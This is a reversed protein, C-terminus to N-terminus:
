SRNDQAVCSLQGLEIGITTGPSSTLTPVTGLSVAGEISKLGGNDGTIATAGTISTIYSSLPVPAGTGDVTVPASLNVVALPDTTPSASSWNFAAHQWGATTYWVVYGSYTLAASSTGITDASTCALQATTLYLNVLGLSGSLAPYGSPLTPTGTVFPLGPFVKLWTNMSASSTAAVAGAAGTATGTYVDAGGTVTPGSGSADAIRVMPNASSLGLSADPVVTSDVQNTFWLGGCASGGSAVLGSSVQLSSTTADAGVPAVPLGGSVSAGLNSYTTHGFAGWGGCDFGSGIAYNNSDSLTGNAVDVPAAASGKAGTISGVSLTPDTDVISAATADAGARSGNSLTGNVTVGGVTAIISNGARDQTQLLMAASKAQAVVLTADTGQSAIETFTTFKHTQGSNSWSTVVTVGIIPSPPQDAGVTANNYTSPISTSPLPSAAPNDAHLFQTYIVQTYRADDPGLASGPITVKYYPGPLLDATAAPSASYTGTANGSVLDPLPITTSTALANPFYMDLLDVFPGNQADVHYPLSRMADIRQQTLGKAGNDNRAYLQGRASGILVGALGQAVLAFVILAVVMEILTFGADPEEAQRVRTLLRDVSIHV